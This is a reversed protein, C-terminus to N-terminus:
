RLRREQPKRGKTGKMAKNKIIHFILTIIKRKEKRGGLEGM